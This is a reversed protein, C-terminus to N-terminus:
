CTEASGTVCISPLASMLRRRRTAVIGPGAAKKTRFIRFKCDSLQYDQSRKKPKGTPSGDSNKACQFHAQTWGQNQGPRYGKMIPPAATPLRKVGCGMNKRTRAGCRPRLGRPARGNPDWPERLGTNKRGAMQSGFTFGRSVRANVRVLLHRWYAAATLLAINPPLISSHSQREVSNLIRAKAKFFFPM